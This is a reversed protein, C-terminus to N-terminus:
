GDSRPPPPPPPPGPAAAVGAPTSPPAAHIPPRAGPLEATTPRSDATSRPARPHFPAMGIPSWTGPTGNAPAAGPVALARQPHEYYSYDYYGARWRKRTKNLVVGAVTGGVSRIVDIARQVQRANTRGAEVVIVTTTAHVALTVADTVVMVPPTDIIVLKHTFGLLSLLPGAHKSALLESPNPPLTGSTLLSLNQFRTHWAGNSPVSIRGESAELLLDSFGDRPPEDFLRQQAPRRLDGDILLVSEGAAAIAGALNAATYTKGEGLRASTIVVSQLSKDVASFLLNTRLRRYGEAAVEQNRNHESPRGAVPAKFRPIVALTPVGLRRQVDEETRLGTDFFRYVAALLVGALLGGFGGLLVNTRIDPSAPTSPVTAPAAITLAATNHTQISRLSTVL